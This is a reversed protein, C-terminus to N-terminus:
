EGEGRGEEKGENVSDGEIKRQEFCEKGKSVGKEYKNEGEGEVYRGGEM